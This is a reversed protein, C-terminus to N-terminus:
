VLSLEKIYYMEIVNNCEPCQTIKVTCPINNDEMMQTAEEDIDVDGDLFGGCYECIEIVHM